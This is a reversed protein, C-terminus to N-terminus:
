KWKEMGRRREERERESERKLFYFRLSEDAVDAATHASTSETVKVPRLTVICHSYLTAIIGVCLVCLGVTSAIEYMFIYQLRLGNIEMHALSLPIDSVNM